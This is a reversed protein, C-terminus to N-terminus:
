STGLSSLKEHFEGAPQAANGAVAAGGRQGCVVDSSDRLRVERLPQLVEGAPALPSQQHEVAEFLHLVVTPSGAHVPM